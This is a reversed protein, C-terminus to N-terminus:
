VRVKRMLTQISIKALQAELAKETEAFVSDMLGKMQCSVPCHRAAPYDHFQFVEKSGLAHYLDRLTIKAPKKALVCGGAKGVQSKLIGAKVLLSIIRRVVVPNTGVSSAIQPSTMPEDMVALATVLHVAISFRHNGAM